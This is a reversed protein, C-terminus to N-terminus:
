LSFLCVLSRLGHMKKNFAQAIMEDDGADAPNIVKWGPKSALNVITVLLGTGVRGQDRNIIWAELDSVLHGFSALSAFYREYGINSSILYSGM